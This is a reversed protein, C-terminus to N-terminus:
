AARAVGPVRRDPRRDRGPAAQATRPVPAARIRPRGAPEGRQGRRQRGGAALADCRHRHLGRHGHRGVAHPHPGPGQQGALRRRWGPVDRGAATGAPCARRDDRDRRRLLARDHRAAHGARAPGAPDEARGRRVLPQPVPRRRPQVVDVGPLGLRSAQGANAGGRRVPRARLARRVRVPLQIRAAARRRPRLLQGPPGSGGLDRRAAPARRRLQRRDPALGPLRRAGRAPEHQERRAPRIARDDPRGRQSPSQRATQRGQLPRAGRRHPVRGRGPGALVAPHRRLGRARGPEWWNLDPQEPLFNHLYFQKTPEHWAWASAGTSDLWNNPPGGDPGPGAWVYFDRHGADRSSAADIFWAHQSSTHNPVLDLLVRLGRRGAEAILRDMDGLTGLEPHVGLYDSVDYGWDHDPSPMTPSLWIGDVGLWSLYDLGSIVGEIDGYGDGNTDRWSRVYLQYLAAGHWWRGPSSATPQGPKSNM